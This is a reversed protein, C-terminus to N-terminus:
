KRIERTGTIEVPEHDRYQMRLRITDGDIAGTFEVPLEDGNGRRLITFSVNDGSIKGSTIPAAGRKSSIKGEVKGGAVQLDLTSQHSYGDPTRYSLTWTDAIGAPALVALLAM